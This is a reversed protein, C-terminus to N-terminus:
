FPIDDSDENTMTQLDSIRSNINGWGLFNTKKKNTVRITLSCNGLYETTSLLEDMAGKIQAYELIPKRINYWIDEETLSDRRQHGEDDLWTDDDNYEDLLYNELEKPLCLGALNRSYERLKKRTLVPERSSKTPTNM